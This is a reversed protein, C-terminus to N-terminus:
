PPVQRGPSIRSVYPRNREDERAIGTCTGSMARSADINIWELGQLIFHAEVDQLEHDL